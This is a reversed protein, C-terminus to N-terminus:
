SWKAYVAKLEDIWCKVLDTTDRGLEKALKYFGPGPQMDGDKHVVLVTLMGRGAANEARSVEGLMEFFGYSDPEIHITQIMAALTSYPITRQIKAHEILIGRMEEKAKRWDSILYGYLKEM